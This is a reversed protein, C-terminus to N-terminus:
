RMRGRRLLPSTDFDWLWNRYPTWAWASNAYTLWGLLLIATTVIVTLRYLSRGEPRSILAPIGAYVYLAVPWFYLAFRYAGVSSVAAAPLALLAGIALQRMLPNDGHVAVWRRGLAFYLIGAASLPIIQALAGPADLRRPGSVYLESYTSFAGPALFGIGLIVILVGLAAAGKVFASARTGLAVFVLALLASFHFLSAFLVMLARSVHSRREWTAFLTFILGAAIAQRIASMAFAVVLFPTAVVLALLPETCRRAVQFLGWCFVTASFVNLLLIGRPSGAALWSLLGFGPESRTLVATLGASGRVFNLYHLWVYNDWDTGVQFRFGIMLWYILISLVLALSARRGVMSLTAPVALMALYPYM